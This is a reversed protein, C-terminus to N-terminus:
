QQNYQSLSLGVRLSLVALPRRLQQRPRLSRLTRLTQLQQVQRQDRRRGLLLVPYSLDPQPDGTHQALEVEATGLM